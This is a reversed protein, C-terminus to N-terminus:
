GEKGEAHKKLKKIARSYKSLVTALPMGLLKAIERHKLGSVAHLIVIEREDPSLIHLLDAIFENRILDGAIDSEDSREELEDSYVVRSARNFGRRIINLEISIIWAMPKGMPTYRRAYKYMRVFTDHTIDESLSPDATKSMAYSYVSSGALEYLEGMADINGGAMELILEEIRVDRTRTEEKDWLLM